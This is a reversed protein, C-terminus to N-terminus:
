EYRSWRLPIYIYCACCSTRSHRKEYKKFNIQKHIQCYAIMANIDWECTHVIEHEVGIRDLAKAQAGIGSFTEIVKFM